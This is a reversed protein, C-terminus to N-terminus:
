DDHSGAKEDHSYVGREDYVSLMYPGGAEWLFPVEYFPFGARVIAGDAPGGRLTLVPEIM